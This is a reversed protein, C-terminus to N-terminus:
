FYTSFLCKVRILKKLCDQCQRKSFYCIKKVACLYCLDKQIPQDDPVPPTPTSPPMTQPHPKSLRLASDLSCLSMDGDSDLQPIAQLRVAEKEGLGSPLDNPLQCQWRQKVPPVPLPPNTVMGTSGGVAAADDKKAEACTWRAATAASM